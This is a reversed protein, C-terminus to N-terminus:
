SLNTGHGSPRITSSYIMPFIGCVKNVFTREEQWISPRGSKDSLRMERVPGQLTITSHLIFAKKGQAKKEIVSSRGDSVARRHGPKATPTPEFNMANMLDQQVEVSKLPCREVPLRLTADRLM